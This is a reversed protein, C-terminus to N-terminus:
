FGEKEDELRNVELVNSVQRLRHLIKSYQEEGTVELLMHRHILNDSREKLTFNVINVNFSAIAASIDRLLGVRDIAKIDIVVPTLAKKRDRHGWSAELVRAPDGKLLVKCTSTHIRIANGRTVYGVIADVPKPKCCSSLKYPVNAEGAILIEDEGPPPVVAAKEVGGKGPHAKRVADPILFVKKVVTAASVAGNGVDVLLDEREKLSLKHPGYRRLISFNDDLQPKSLSVLYKNILNKGEKLSEETNLGKFFSKIKAKAHASKVFSLWHFKPGPEHKMLIEVRDGNKLHYDLPVISGNVKAGQCRHGVDTHVAYAFDVPTAGKALDKVEGDPTFVFIHDHFMDLKINKGWGKGQALEQQVSALGDLWEQYRRAKMEQFELGGHGRGDYDKIDEYLWHAAFGYEAQRHMADSRIQIEFPQDFNRDGEGIITTHLSRYGNSKPVAIYDKFRDPQPTWHSHILGLLTYLKETNETGNRHFRTPLIIRFAFIDFIEQLSSKNKKKMKNYVSYINKLRGEVRGEIGQEDLFEKLRKKIKELFKERKRNYAELQSRLDEYKDPDLYKFALDELRCKIAYIGLRSAIPAYVDLMERAVEKRRVQPVYDLSEVDHLLDALRILVLRLDQAMSLLMRRFAEIDSKGGKLHVSQLKEMGEILSAVDEGFMKGIEEPNYTQTKSLDHMLAALISNEDPMFGLLNDTVVLAHTLMPDGSVRYMGRLRQKAYEFAQRVRVIDFDPRYAQIKEIIQDITLM